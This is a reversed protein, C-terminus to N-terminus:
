LYKKVKEVVENLSINSKIIYDVAGAKLGKQVDGEQGLNSLIIVPINKLEPDAKLKVLTEFGNMNPMIIDMLIIKPKQKKANELVQNGDGCIIVDFLEKKFKLDVVKSLFPDDEAILIINKEENM